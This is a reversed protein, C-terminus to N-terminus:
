SCTLMQYKTLEYEIMTEEEKNKTHIRACIVSGLSEWDLLIPEKTPHANYKYNKNTNLWLLKPSLYYCHPVIYGVYRWANYQIM